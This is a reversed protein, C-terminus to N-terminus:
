GTEKKPRPLPFVDGMDIRQAGSDTELLLSGREDIGSFRGVVGGGPLKVRMETDMPLAYSLWRERIPQFGHQRWQDTYRILRDLFASLLEEVSVLAGAEQLSTVDPLDAPFVEVNVGVGIVLWDLQGDADASSELLIGSAKKGAIMLDNPWKLAAPADTLSELADALAVGTVFGLQPADAPRCDPRQLISLYLNGRPSSWTRGHRGRGAVQERAWVVTGAEAGQQALAKAEENTSGVSDLSVLHCGAPVEPQSTTM